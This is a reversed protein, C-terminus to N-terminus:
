RAGGFVLRRVAIPILRNLSWAEMNITKGIRIALRPAKGETFPIGEPVRPAADIPKWARQTWISDTEYADVFARSSAQDFDSRTRATLTAPKPGQLHHQSVDM